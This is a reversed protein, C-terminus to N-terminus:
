ETLGTNGIVVREDKIAVVVVPKRREAVPKEDDVAM